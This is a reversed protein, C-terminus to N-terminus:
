ACGECGSAAFSVIAGALPRRRGIVGIIPERFPRNHFSWLTAATTVSFISMRSIKPASRNEVKAVTDACLPGEVSKGHGGLALFRINIM